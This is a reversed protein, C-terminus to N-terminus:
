CQPATRWDHDILGSLTILHPPALEGEPETARHRPRQRRERLLRRQLHDPDKSAGVHRGIADGDKALARM